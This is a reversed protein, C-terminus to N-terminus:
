AYETTPTKFDRKSVIMDITGALSLQRIMPLCAESDPRDDM